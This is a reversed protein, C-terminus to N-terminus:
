VFRCSASDTAASLEAQEIAALEREFESVESESWPGLLEALGANQVVGTLEIEGNLNAQIIFM